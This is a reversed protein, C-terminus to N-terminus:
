YGRMDYQVRDDVKILLKTGNEMLSVEVRHWTNKQWKHPSMAYGVPQYQGHQVRYLQMNDTMDLTGQRDGGNVRFIYYDDASMYKVVIDVATDKNGKVCFDVSFKYNDGVVDAVAISDRDTTLQIIDTNPKFNFGSTQTWSVRQALEHSTYDSTYPYYNNFPDLPDYDDPVGFGYSDDWQEVDMGEKLLDDNYDHLVGQGLLSGDMQIGYKEPTAMIGKIVDGLKEPTAQIQEEVTGFKEERYGELHSMLTFARDQKVSTLIANLGEIEKEESYAFIFDTIASALRGKLEAFQIEELTANKRPIEATYEESDLLGDRENKHGMYERDDVTAQINGREGEITSHESYGDQVDRTGMTESDKITHGEYDAKTGITESDKITHGEHDAKTGEYGSEYIHAERDRKTGMWDGKFFSSIREVASGFLNKINELLTGERNWLSGTSKEDHLIMAEKSDKGGIAHDYSIIGESDQRTALVNDSNIDANSDQRTALVEEQTIHGISQERDAMDVRDDLTSESINHRNGLQMNDDLNGGIVNPREGLVNASDITGERDELYGLPQELEELWGYKPITVKHAMLDPYEVVMAESDERTGEIDTHTVNGERIDVMAEYNISIIDGAIDGERSSLLIESDILAQIKQKAGELLDATIVGIKSSTLDGMIHYEEVWAPSDLLEGFIMDEMLLGEWTKNEPLEGGNILIELWEDRLHMLKRKVRDYMKTYELYMSKESDRDFSQQNLLLLEKINDKQWITSTALHLGKASDRTGDVSEQIDLQKETRYGQQQEKPLYLGSRNDRDFEDSVNVMLENSVDRLAIVNDCKTNFLHTNQLVDRSGQPQEHSLHLVNDYKREGQPRNKDIHANVLYFRSGVDLSDQIFMKEFIDRHATLMTQEIHMPLNKSQQEDRYGLLKDKLTELANTVDREFRLTDYSKVLDGVVIDRLADSVAQFYMEERNLRDGVGTYHMHTPYQPAKKKGLLISNESLLEKNHNDRTFDLVERVFMDNSVDRDMLIQNDLATMHSNNIIRNALIEPRMVKLYRPIIEIYFDLLKYDTYMIGKNFDRTALISNGEVFGKHHSTRNAVISSGTVNLGFVDTRLAQLGGGIIDSGVRYPRFYEGLTNSVEGGKRFPRAGQLEKAIDLGSIYDRNASGIKDVVLGDRDVRFAIDSQTLKGMNKLIDRSFSINSVTQLKKRNTIRTSFSIEDSAGEKDIKTFLESVDELIGGDEGDREGLVIFDTLNGSSLDERIATILDTNVTASRNVDAMLFDLMLVSPYLSFPAFVLQYQATRETDMLKFLYGDEFVKYDVTRFFITTNSDLMNM